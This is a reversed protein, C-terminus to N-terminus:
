VDLPSPYQWFIASDISILTDVEFGSFLLLLLFCKFMIADNKYISKMFSHFMISCFNSHALLLLFLPVM